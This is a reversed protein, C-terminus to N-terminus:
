SWGSIARARMPPLDSCTEAVFPVLLGWADAAARQLVTALLETDVTTETYASALRRAEDKSGPWRYPVRSARAELTLFMQEAWCGGLVQALGRLGEM